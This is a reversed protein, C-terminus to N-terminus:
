DFSWSLSLMSLCFVKRCYCNCRALYWLLFQSRGGGGMGAFATHPTYIEVRVQLSAGWDKRGPYYWLLLSSPNEDQQSLTLSGGGSHCWHFGCPTWEWGTTSLLGWGWTDISVLHPVEVGVGVQCYYSPSLSLSTAWNHGVRQPGHVTAWWAGRDMPNELWSYQLSNGSGEGPSRGSGSISGLDGEKRASVKDESCWPIPHYWEVIRALVTDWVCIYVCVCVWVCVCVSKVWSFLINLHPGSDWLVISVNELNLYFILIWM